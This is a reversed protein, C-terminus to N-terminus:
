NPHGFHDYLYMNCAWIYTIVCSLIISPLFMGSVQTCLAAVHFVAYLSFWKAQELGLLSLMPPLCFLALSLFLVGLPNGVCESLLLTLGAVCRLALWRAFFQLLIFFIIPLEPLHVYKELSYIPAFPRGLGYDRLIMVFRPCISAIACIACVFDTCLLKSRVTDSRGRPMSTIVKEMGSQKEISFYSFFCLVVVFASLLSEKLDYQDALDFLMYYGTPYVIEVRPLKSHYKALEEFQSVVAQYYRQREQLTGLSNLIDMCEANSIEKREWRQRVIVLPKFEEGMKRIKEYTEANIPGQAQTTYYQIYHEDISLEGQLTLLSYSQLLLYPVLFFIVGNMFLLKKWEMQLITTSWRPKRKFFSCITGLSRSSTTLYRGSSFRLIFLTMGSFLILILGAHMVVEMSVPEGFWYLMRYESLRENTNLFGFFNCYRLINWQGTPSTGLRLVANTALLVLVGFIASATNSTFLVVAMICVAIVFLAGWKSGLYYLIYTGVSLPLPCRMLAPVSQVSRSLDGFGYFFQCFMFNIGYLLIVIFGASVWMTILKAFATEMRGSPTTYLYRLLGKEKEQYLMTISILLVCLIGVLDTFPFSLATYIGTQPVYEILVNQLPRYREASKQLVLRNYDGKQFISLEEKEIAQQQIKKFFAPYQYVSDCEQAFKQIFQYETQLTDCYNLYTRSEYIEEYKALDEQWRKRLEVEKQGSFAEAQRIQYIHYLGTMKEKESQLYQQREEMSLDQLKAIIGHYAESPFRSHLPNADIWLLFLNASLLFLLALLFTKNKWLKRWEALVLRLM